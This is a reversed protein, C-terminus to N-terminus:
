LLYTMDANVDNMITQREKEEDEFRKKNWWGYYAMQGVWIMNATVMSCGAWFSYWQNLHPYYYLNWIGWSMFFIIPAIHVGKVEKDQYLKRISLWILLSGIGEYLANIHDPALM